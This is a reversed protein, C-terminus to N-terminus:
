ETLELAKAQLDPLSCYCNRGGTYDKVDKATRILIENFWRDPWFRVDSVSFYVLKGTAPNRLFGSVEFHNKHFSAVELVKGCVRKVEKRYDAVFAKWGETPGSSSQFQYGLWSQIGARSTAQRNRLAALERRAAEIESEIAAARADIFQASRNM